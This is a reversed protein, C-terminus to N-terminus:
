ETPITVAEVEAVTTAAEVANYAVRLAERYTKTAAYDDATIQGEAYKLAKYDTAALLTKIESEKAAQATALAQVDTVPAQYDKDVVTLGREALWEDSASSLRGEPCGHCM